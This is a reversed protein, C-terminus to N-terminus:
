YSEVVEWPIPGFGPWDLIKSGESPRTRWPNEGLPENLWQEETMPSYFLVKLVRNNPELTLTGNAPELHVDCEIGKEPYCLTMATHPPDIGVSYVYTKSPEGWKDLVMQATLGIDLALYIHHVIGQRIRLESLASVGFPMKANRTLWRVTIEGMDNPDSITAEAFPGNATSNHLIRVTEQESTQGPTIGQWCPAVCPVDGLLDKAVPGQEQPSSACASCLVLLFVMCAIPALPIAGETPPSFGCIRPHTSLPGLV